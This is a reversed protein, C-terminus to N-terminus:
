LRRHLTNLPTPPAHTGPPHPQFNHPHSSPPLPLAHHAGRNLHYVVLCHCGSSFVAVPLIVISSSSYTSIIITILERCQQVAAM